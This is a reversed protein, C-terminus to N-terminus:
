VELENQSTHPDFNSLQDEKWFMEQCEHVSVPKKEEGLTSFHAKDFQCDVVHTTILDSKLPEM